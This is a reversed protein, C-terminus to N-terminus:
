NYTRSETFSQLFLRMMRRRCACKPPGLLELLEALEVAGAVQLLLEPLVIVISPRALDSGMRVAAFAAAAEPPEPEAWCCWHAPQPLPM